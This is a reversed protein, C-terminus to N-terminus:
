GPIEASPIIVYTEGGKLHCRGANERERKIPSLYTKKNKDFSKLYREGYGLHWVSAQAYILTEAFPYEFYQGNVPLRGGTQQMSFMIETDEVPRILFQPNKAYRELHDKTYSSPLGGSNAKTWASKFRVASWDQPFDINVFLQSFNNKWDSYHMMFTGDNAGLEFQEEPALENIYEEQIQKKYKDMEPSNDSWAGLWESNGWPNRLRMLRITSQDVPDIIEFIDNLGYAHNQILGTPKGEIIQAGGKEAKISCGLLCMENDRAKIFEWFGDKGGYHEKIMKHPFCGTKEDRILIKEPQFGTLEQVGEDVYGSILNEYCGHMKAFAKEVLAVWQEHESRCSGFVPRMKQVEKGAGKITEMHCPIREDLIVYVWTFNKYIRLIYMGVSRYRHFIPPYLGNCLLSAIEKDVIMDDTYEMGARGGVLLEDRNACVSMASILWCDGILGQVCDASAAGNDVFQPKEGSDCVEESFLWEIESPDTMGKPNATGDKYLSFKHGNTDSKDKPGFTTDIYKEKKDRKLQKYIERVRALAAKENTLMTPNGMFYDNETVEYDRYSLNIKADLIDEMDNLLLAEGWDLEYKKSFENFENFEFFAM